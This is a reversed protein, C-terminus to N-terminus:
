KKPKSNKDGPLTGAKIEEINTFGDGDADKNEIEKLSDANVPKKELMKGYANEGDKGTKTTHCTLCRAKGLESDKDPKYLKNFENMWKVTAFATTSLLAFVMLILIILQFRKM